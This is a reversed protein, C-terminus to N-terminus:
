IHTLNKECMTDQIESIINPIMSRIDVDYRVKPPYDNGSFLREIVTHGNIRIQFTFVDEDDYINKTDCPPYEDLYPNFGAWLYEWTKGKMTHPGPIDLQGEGTIFNVCKDICLKLEYSKTVQPNFDEVKFYRQCIINGNILFLFEFKKNSVNKDYSM